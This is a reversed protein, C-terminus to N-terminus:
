ILCLRSCSGVYSAEAVFAKLAKSLGRKRLYDAVLQDVAPSAMPSSLHAAPSLPSSQSHLQHHTRLQVVRPGFM